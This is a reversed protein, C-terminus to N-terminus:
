LRRDCGTGICQISLTEYRGITPGFEGKPGHREELNNQHHIETAHMCINIRQRNTSAWKTCHDGVAVSRRRESDPTQIGANIIAYLANLQNLHSCYFFILLSIFGFFLFLYLTCEKVDLLGHMMNCGRRRGAVQYGDWIFGITCTCM